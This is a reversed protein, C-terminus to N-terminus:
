HHTIQVRQVEAGTHVISGVVVTCKIPQLEQKGTATCVRHKGIHVRPVHSHVDAHRVTVCVGVAALHAIKINCKIV